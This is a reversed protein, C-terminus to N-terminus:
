KSTSAARQVAAAVLQGGIMLVFQEFKLMIPDNFGSAVMRPQSVGDVVADVTLTYDGNNLGSMSRVTNGVTDLIHQLVPPPTGMNNWYPSNGHDFGASNTIRYSISLDQM